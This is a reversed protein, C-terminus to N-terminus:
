HTHTHSADGLCACVCQASLCRNSHQVDYLKAELERKQADKISLQAEVDLRRQEQEAVMEGLAHQKERLIGRLVAIEREGNEARAKTVEISHSLTKIEQEHAEQQQQLQREQDKIVVQTEIITKHSCLELQGLRQCASEHEQKEQHLALLAREGSKSLQEVASALQGEKEELGEVKHQLKQIRQAKSHGERELEEVQHVRQRLEDGKVQVLMQAHELERRLTENEKRQEAYSSVYSFGKPDSRHPRPGQPDNRQPRPQRRHALAQAQLMQLDRTKTSDSNGADPCHPPSLVSTNMLLGPPTFALPIPARSDATYNTNPIPASVLLKSKVAKKKSSPRLGTNSKHEAEAETRRPLDVYVVEQSRGHSAKGGTLGKQSAHLARASSYRGAIKSEASPVEHGAGLSEQVRPQAYLLSDSTDLQSENGSTDSSEWAPQNAAVPSTLPRLTKVYRRVLDAKDSDITALLSEM